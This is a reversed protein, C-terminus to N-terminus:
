LKEDLIQTNYIAIIFNHFATFRYRVAPHENITQANAAKAKERFFHALPQGYTNPFSRAIANAGSPDAATTADGFEVRVTTGQACVCLGHNMVM